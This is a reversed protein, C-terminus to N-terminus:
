YAPESIGVPEAPPPPFSAFKEEAAKIIEAANKEFFADMNEQRPVIIPFELPKVSPNNKSHELSENRYFNLMEPSTRHRISIPDNHGLVIIAWLLKEKDEKDPKDMIDSLIVTAAYREKTDV